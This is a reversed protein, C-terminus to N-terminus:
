ESELSENKLSYTWVLSDTHNVVDEAVSSTLLHALGTRGHTGLAILDGQVLNTFEIIGQRKSHHNFINLTYHTLMFHSAFTELRKRTDTDNQFDGPTNVWVVHLKAQFKHQLDKVRAVLNEQHEFSLDNPFVINKIPRLANKKVVMVPVPSQRVIREANSGIFYEKVGSAGTSGMVVLDIKKAAIQELIVSTVTGYRIESVVSVEEGKKKKVLAKFEKEAKEKMDHMLEEEFNLTPMLMTDQMLPPEIVHILYITEGPKTALELAQQYADIAAKSFDCPVLINKM